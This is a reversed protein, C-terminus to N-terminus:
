LVTKVKFEDTPLGKRLQDMNLSNTRERRFGFWLGEVVNSVPVM